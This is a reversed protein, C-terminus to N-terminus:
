NCPRLMDESCILFYGARREAKGHGTAAFAQKFPRRRIGRELREAHRRLPFAGNRDANVLGRAVPLMRPGLLM